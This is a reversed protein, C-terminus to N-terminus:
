HASPKDEALGRVKTAKATKEDVKSRDRERDLALEVEWPGQPESQGQRYIWGGEGAETIEKWWVSGEALVHTGSALSIEGTSQEQSM